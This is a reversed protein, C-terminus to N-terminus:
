SPLDKKLADMFQAGDDTAFWMAHGILFDHWAADAQHEDNLLGIFYHIESLAFEIHVLPLLQLILDVEAASLPRISHYGRLLQLAAQPDAPQTLDLWPIASREIATAIDQLASTRAALGFDFITAVSGDPNWLLNSPHWDNHTWLTPHLALKESLGQGFQDLLSKLVNQWGKGQLYATMAPREAIYHQTAAIPDASPLITFSTILPHPGREPEAFDQAADHLQALAVGSQYAHQLSLYPTWSQYDQYLDDGASRCYVEYTYGDHFLTSQGDLSRLVQPVPLGNARLHAMFRHEEGLSAADRLAQNHRKLLYDGNSTEAMCASSFPRPSHWTLQRLTGAEPFQILVAQAEAPTIAPWTPAEMEMGMSHVLHGSGDM